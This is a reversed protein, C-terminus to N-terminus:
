VNEVGCPSLALGLSRGCFVTSIGLPASLRHLFFLLFGLRLGMLFNGAQRAILARVQRRHKKV